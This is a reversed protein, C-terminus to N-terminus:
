GQHKFKDQVEKKEQMVKFLTLINETMTKYIGMNKKCFKSRSLQVMKILADYYKRNEWYSDKKGFNEKSVIGVAAYSATKVEDITGGLNLQLSVACFHKWVIFLAETKGSQLLNSLEMGDDPFKKEFDVNQEEKNNEVVSQQARELAFATVEGITQEELPIEMINLEKNSNSESSKEIIMLLNTCNTKFKKQIDQNINTCKYYALLFNIFLLFKEKNEKCFQKKSLDLCEVLMSHCNSNFLKSGNEASLLIYGFAAAIAMEDEPLWDKKINQGVVYLYDWLKEFGEKKGSSILIFLEKGAGPLPTSVDIKSLNLHKKRYYSYLRGLILIKVPDLLIGAYGALMVLLSDPFKRGNKRRWLGLERSRATKEREHKLLFNSGNDIKKYVDWFTSISINSNFYDDFNLQMAEILSLPEFSSKRNLYSNYKVPKLTKTTGTKQMFDVFGYSLLGSKADKLITKSQVTNRVGYESAHNLQSCEGCSQPGIVYLSIFLIWIIIRNNAM